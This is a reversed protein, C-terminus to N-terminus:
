DEKVITGIPEGCAVRLINEPDKLAFVLVPMRNDMALSTATTDMVALHKALVEDAAIDAPTYQSLDIGDEPGGSKGADGDLLDDAEDTEENRKVERSRIKETRVSLSRIYEAQMPNIPVCIDTPGDYQPMGEEDEPQRYFDCCQSFISMLESLNNFSSFRTMTRLSSANADVDCENGCDCKCHWSIRSSTSKENLSLVTLSEFKQGILDQVRKAASREHATCGCSKSTGKKLNGAVVVTENGCTCICRWNSEHEGAVKVREIVTLQGFTQGSLDILKGM